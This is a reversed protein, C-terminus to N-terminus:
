IAVAGHTLKEHLRATAREMVLPLVGELLEPTFGYEAVFGGNFEFLFGDEVVGPGFSVALYRACHLLALLPRAEVPSGEPRHSFEAATVLIGSFRWTRMLQAGVESHDYGLIDREAKMWACGNQKQRFRIAPFHASCAHAVALKGMDCVLGATYATQSDAKRTKEALAEAALAICLAHRCFDGADGGYAGLGSGSDWRNVLALAALRYIERLGLRIVAEAVTEVASGSGFYASNALRLTSATLAPDLQIIGEIEEAGSGADELVAILRPMLSPASPLRLARGCVEDLTPPRGTIAPNNEM